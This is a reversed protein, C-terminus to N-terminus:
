ARLAQNENQALALEALEGCPNIPDILTEM